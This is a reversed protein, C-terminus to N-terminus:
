LRLLENFIVRRKTNSINKFKAKDRCWNVIDEDKSNDYNGLIFYGVLYNIYDVRDVRIMKDEMFSLVKDLTELTIKFCYSLEESSLSSLNVEKIDSPFPAFNNKHSQGILKEYAPNLAAIPYSVTTKKPSFFHGYGYGELSYNFKKVYDNYIDIDHLRLKSFQLQVRSVTTGANNLVEFWKIQQDESLDEASNITYNYQMFKNRINVVEGLCDSYYESAYKYFVDWDKNYLIGVPIQSQTNVEGVLKLFKGRQTDLVIKSFESDNSHAKYNTALRQQGDVVSHQGKKRELKERKIFSFQPVSGGEETNNIINISIASVPAKGLLQYNFLDVSKQLNWSADRQYGPVTFRDDEIWTCIQEISMLVSRKTPNDTAAKLLEKNIKKM